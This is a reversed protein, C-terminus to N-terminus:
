SYTDMGAFLELRVTGQVPHPEMGPAEEARPSPDGRLSSVAEWCQVEDLNEQRSERSGEAGLSYRSFHPYIRQWTHTVVPNVPCSAMQPNALDCSLLARM